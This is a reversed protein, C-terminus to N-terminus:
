SGIRERVRDLVAIATRLEADGFAAGLGDIAGDMAGDITALLDRGVGTIKLEFVGEVLGRGKLRHLAASVHDASAVMRREVEPRPHGGDGAGRLIRLINFEDVRLGAPALVRDLWRDMLAATRRVSLVLEKAPVVPAQQKIETTIRTM